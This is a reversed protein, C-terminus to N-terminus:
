NVESLLRKVRDEVEQFVRERDITLVKKHEMVLHGDIIVTDVDGSQAAYVVHAALNHRPYLHAKNLDILILDAKYGPRLLGVDELRLARAGESTAMKLVQLAPLVLPDGENVKHLLAATRMEELMDLNNNSSAGDTGIGVTIGASLLKPIPAIGSALKMNSEPNHAVAAGNEALISIDESTLHVCHAAITPFQFVRRDLLYGVPTKGYLDKIQAIEDRTEAVHIHIKASYDQAITLVQDLYDPPCTYPAHPGLWISIRGDAAGQWKKLFERSEELGVQAEAGTGVLGRSLCARMGSEEVAEAVRDMFFYMDCFTTTGSEIMELLALMTGWYVDDETLRAEMPWIMKELWHMLPLDDAYSRLLTMAAHTHCNVFGPLCFYDRGDIVRDPKWGQPVNGEEGVKIFRNGEIAVDGQSVRTDSDLQLLYCGKILIKM